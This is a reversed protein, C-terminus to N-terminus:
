GAGKEGKGHNSYYDDTRPRFPSGIGGEWGESEDPTNRKWTKNSVWSIASSIKKYM